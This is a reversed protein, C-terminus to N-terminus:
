FVMLVRCKTALFATKKCLVSVPASLCPHHPWTRTSAAPPVSGLSPSDFRCSSDAGADASRYTGLVAPVERAAEGSM